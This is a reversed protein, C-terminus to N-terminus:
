WPRLGQLHRELQRSRQFPGCGKGLTRKGGSRQGRVERSARVSRGPAEEGGPDGRPRGARSADLAQASSASRGGQLGGRRAGAGGLMLRRAAASKGGGRKGEERAEHRAKRSSEAGARGEGEKRCLGQCVVWLFARAPFVVRLGGLVAAMMRPPCLGGWAGLALVHAAYPALAPAAGGGFRLPSGVYVFFRRAAM